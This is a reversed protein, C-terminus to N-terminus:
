LFTVFKRACGVFLVDCICLWSVLNAGPHELRRNYKFEFLEQKEDFEVDSVMNSSPNPSVSYLRDAFYDRFFRDNEDANNKWM